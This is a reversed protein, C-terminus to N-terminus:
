GTSTYTLRSPPQRNRTARQPSPVLPDLSPTPVVTRRQLLGSGTRQLNRDALARNNMTAQLIPNVIPADELVLNAAQVELSQIEPLVEASAAPLPQRPQRFERQNTAYMEWPSESRIDRPPQNLPQGVQFEHDPADQIFDGRPNINM